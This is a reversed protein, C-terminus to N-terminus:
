RKHNCRRVSDRIDAALSEALQSSRWSDYSRSFRDWILRDEITAEILKHVQEVSFNTRFYEWDNKPNESGIEEDNEGDVAPLRMLSKRKGIMSESLLANMRSTTRVTATIRFFHFIFRFVTKFLTDQM